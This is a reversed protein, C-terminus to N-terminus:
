IIIQTVKSDQQEKVSVWEMNKRLVCCCSATLTRSTSWDMVAVVSKFSVLQPAPRRQNKMRCLSCIFVVPTLAASTPFSTCSNQTRTQFGVMVSFLMLMPTRMRKLSHCSRLSLLLFGLDAGFWFCFANVSLSGSKKSQMGCLLWWESSSQQPYLTGREKVGLKGAGHLLFSHYFRSASWVEWILAALPLDWMRRLLPTAGGWQHQPHESHSGGLYGIVVTHSHTRCPLRGSYQLIIHQWLFLLSLFRGWVSMWGGVWSLYPVFAIGRGAWLAVGGPAALSLGLALRRPGLQCCHIHQSCM